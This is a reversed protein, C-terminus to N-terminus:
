GAVRVTGDSAINLRKAVDAFDAPTANRGKAGADWAQIAEVHMEDAHPPKWNGGWGFCRRGDSTKYKDLLNEVIAREAPTMHIKGDAKLVDYRIDVATGSSHNSLNTSMRSTRYNWGDLPGTSLKLRAPMLRHWDALFAAFVPAASRAVRITRKTGPVTITRLRPDAALRIATWGNMSTAV